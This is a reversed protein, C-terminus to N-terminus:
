NNNLAPWHKDGTTIFGPVDKLWRDQVSKDYNLYLKGDVIKWYEPDGKYLDNRAAVAWACHGGYQPAYREPLEKFMELNEASSFYWDAGQWRHKFKSSGEVPKGETFYAVTDYGGVAKNSFYGTYITDASAVGAGWLLLPMMMALNFLIRQM